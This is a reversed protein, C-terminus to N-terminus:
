RRITAPRGTAISELKALVEAYDPERHPDESVWKHRVIGDGDMVFVSRMAVGHLGMLDEHQVGYLKSVEKNFDSLLPFEFGHDEAFAKLTFPSDVSIAAIGAGADQIRTIQSSFNSLEATCVPSFALPFFIIAVPKGAFGSLSVKNLNQDPLTFDPAKDGINVSTPM